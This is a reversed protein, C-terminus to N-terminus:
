GKKRLIDRIAKITDVSDFAVALGKTKGSSLKFLADFVLVEIARFSSGSVEATDPVKSAECLIYIRKKENIERSVFGCAKEGNDTLCVIQEGEQIPKILVNRVEEGLDFDSPLDIVPGTAVPTPSPTPRTQQEVVPAVPTQTPEQGGFSVASSLNGEATSTTATEEPRLTLKLFDLESDYAMQKATSLYTDLVQGLEFEGSYLSNYKEAAKLLVPLIVSAVNVGVYQSTPLPNVSLKSVFEDKSHFELQDYWKTMNMSYLYEFLISMNTVNKAGYEVVLQKINDSVYHVYLKDASRSVAEQVMRLTTLNELREPDVSVNFKEGDFNIGRVFKRNPQKTYEAYLDFFSLYVDQSLGGAFFRKAVIGVPLAISTLNVGIKNKYDVDRFRDDFLILGAFDLDYGEITAPQMSSLDGTVSRISLTNLDLYSSFDGLKLVKPKVAGWRALKIIAEVYAGLGEGTAAVHDVFSQVIDHGSAMDMEGDLSLFVNPDVGESDESESDADWDEEENYSSISKDIPYKNTHMWNLRTVIKILEQLYILLTPSCTGKRFMEEVDADPFAQQIDYKIYETLALQYEEENPQIDLENNEHSGVVLASDIRPVSNKQEPTLPIIAEVDELTQRIQAQGANLVRLGYITNYVPHPYPKAIDFPNPLLSDFSFDDSMLKEYDPIKIFFTDTPTEMTNTHNIDSSIYKFQHGLRGNHDRIVQVTRSADAYYLEPAEVTFLDEGKRYKVMLDRAKSFNKLDEVSAYKGVPSSALKSSMAQFTSDNVEPLNNLVNYVPSLDVKDGVMSGVVVYPLIPEEAGLEKNPVMVQARDGFNSLEPLVRSNGLMSRFDIYATKGDINVKSMLVVESVNGPTLEMKVVYLM